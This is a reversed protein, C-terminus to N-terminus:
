SKELEREVRSELKDVFKKVAGNDVPLVQRFADFVRKKVIRKEMINFRLLCDKDERSTL